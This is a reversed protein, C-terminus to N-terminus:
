PLGLWQAPPVDAGAVEAGAVLEPEVEHLPMVILEAVLQANASFTCAAYSLATPCAGTDVLTVAYLGTVL